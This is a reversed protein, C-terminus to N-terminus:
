KGDETEKFSNQVWAREEPTITPKFMCKNPILLLDVLKPRRIQENVCHQSTAYAKDAREVALERGTKKCFQDKNSCIAIGRAMVQKTNEDVLLATTLGIRFSTNRSHRILTKM